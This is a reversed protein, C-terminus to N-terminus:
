PQPRLGCDRASGFFDAAYSGAGGSDPASGSALEPLLREREAPTLTWTRWSLRWRPMRFTLTLPCVPTANLARVPVMLWTSATAWARLQVKVVAWDRAGFEAPVEALGAGRATM